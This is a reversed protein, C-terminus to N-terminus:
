SASLQLHHTATPLVIAFTTGQGVVSEVEIRGNHLQVIKHAIPLGLGFGPTSHADDQRWFTKFIHPLHDSAIGAGTDSIEIRVHDAERRTRVHIEGNAPSFRNANELLQRFAHELYISSGAIAPLNPQFDCHFTPQNRDSKRRGACLYDLAANVDVAELILAEMNELKTMLILMDILRIIREIETEIQEKKELRQQPDDSRTLLYASSSITALPTRFEHTADKIFCTLLHRRERELALEFENEQARKLETINRIISLVEDHGNIVMRAEFNQITGKIPLAYQFVQEQGTAYLREVFHMHHAVIDPPLVDAMNRGMFEEPSMLMDHPNGAHYDLYTGDRQYRFVLDPIANLLALYRTYSDQLAEEVRKRETIDIATTFNYATGHLNLIQASLLVSIPSGDRAYIVVEEDRVYGDHKLKDIIMQQCHPDLRVLDTSKKGIVEELTFGLKTCFTRNVEVYEGTEVKILSAIAPNADFAAAFKEESLRLASIDKTVSFLAPQGNWLGPTIYTEVPILEHSKTEIPVPCYQRTGALMDAVIHAAEERRVEPHIALVSYNILEEPTYGLRQVVTQNVELINGQMDLVFIFDDISNFLTRLNTESHRVAEHAQKDVTIDRNVVAIGDGVKVVQQHYWGPSVSGEPVHYDQALPEGTLVVHKYQELFSHYYASLLQTLRGGILTTRPLAIQRVANENAEVVQFDVILGHADRVSKLVFFADLSAEIASRYLEESRALRQRNRQGRGITVWGIVTLLSFFVLYAYTYGFAVDPVFFFSTILILCAMTVSATAVRSLFLSTVLVAFVLFNLVTMKEVMPGPATILSSGVMTFLAIVLLVAGCTYHRSRSLGYSAAFALLLSLSIPRTTVFDPASIIWIPAIIGLAIILALSLTALTRAQHRQEEILLDASPATLKISLQRWRKPNLEFLPM